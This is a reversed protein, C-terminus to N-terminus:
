AVEMKFVEGQGDAGWSIPIPPNAPEQRFSAKNIAPLTDQPRSVMEYGKVKHRYRIDYGERRLESVGNRFCYSKKFDEHGVLNISVIEGPHRNFIELTERARTPLTM